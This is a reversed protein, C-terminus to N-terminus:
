RREQEASSRGSAVVTLVGLALFVAGAVGATLPLWAPADEPGFRLWFAAAILAAGLTTALFGWGRRGHGAADMGLSDAAPLDLGGTWARPAPEPAGLAGALEPTDRVSDWRELNRSSSVRDDPGLQGDQIQRIVEALSKPGEAQGARETYWEVAQELERGPEPSPSDGLSWGRGAAGAGAADLAPQSSVFLGAMRGAQVWNLRDSSVDHLRSIEGSAAMRKLAGMGFPGRQQGRWRVFFTGEGM